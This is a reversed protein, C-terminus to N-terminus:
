QGVDWTLWVCPPFVKIRDFYDKIQKLCGTVGGDMSRMLFPHTHTPVTRVCVSRKQKSLDQSDSVITSNAAKNGGDYREGGRPAHTHIM